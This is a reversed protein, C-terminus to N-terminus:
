LTGRRDLWSQLMVAAAVQDIVGRRARSRTGGARLASAAAVTTLREDQTEVPVTLVGRLRAVEEMAERAASGLTGDLSRPMGVVVAVVEEDDVLRALARRDAVLDGSRVIVTLGTALRQGADSVAIGIRKRGLDVGLLRGATPVATVAGAPPGATVSGAPPGATVSPPEIRGPRM